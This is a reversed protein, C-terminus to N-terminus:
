QKQAIAGKPPTIDEGYAVEWLDHGVLFSEMQNMWLDYNAKGHLVVLFSLFFDDMRFNM